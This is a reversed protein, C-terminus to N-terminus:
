HKDQHGTQGTFCHFIYIVLFAHIHHIATNNQSTLHCLCNALVWYWYRNVQLTGLRRESADLGSDVSTRGGDRELNEKDDDGPAPSVGEPIM